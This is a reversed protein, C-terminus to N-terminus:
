KLRVWDGIMFGCKDPEPVVIREMEAETRGKDVKSKLRDIVFTDNLYATFMCVGYTKGDIHKLEIMGPGFFPCYMGEWQEEICRRIIEKYDM